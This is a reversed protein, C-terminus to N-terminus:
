PPSCAAYLLSVVLTAAFNGGGLFGLMTAAAALALM